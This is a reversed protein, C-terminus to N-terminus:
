DRGPLHICTIVASDIRDRFLQFQLAPSLNPMVAIVYHRMKGGHVVVPLVTLGAAGGQRLHRAGGPHALDGCAARQAAVAGDRAVGALPPLASGDSDFM